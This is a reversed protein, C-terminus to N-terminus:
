IIGCILDPSAKLEINGGINTPMLKGAKEFGERIESESYGDHNVLIANVGCRAAMLVDSDMDNGIMVSGRPDLHHKDLLEQMFRVDPKRMGFESSILIDEFYSTLGLEEIEPRTFLSQANSLMYIHKGEAKLRDLLEITDPYLKFRVRSIIRFANAFSSRWRELLERDWLRPDGWIGNGHYEPANMLLYVFVNGIDIEPYETDLDNSLLAENTKIQARYQRKLDTPKYVAGYSDMIATVKKWFVATNQNTHIDILTAYLDFIYNDYKM